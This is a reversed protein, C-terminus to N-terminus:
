ENYEKIEYNEIQCEFPLIDDKIGKFVPQRFSNKTNPMYEVTCVLTPNLWTIIENEKIKANSFPSQPLIQVNYQELIKLRVGLSVSGKYVLKNGSYQGLIFVSMSHKKIYGCIVFDEDIMRKFKIWDKSRKDQWYLSNKKKAVVGELEKSSAIQYLEIGNKEVFRSIAIRSNENICTQLLSKRVMLPLDMVEKNIYYLIDYAVFSAPFQKEALQIKFSDNLITRRQIEFFDPVGNNNLVVLEGDLICKDTVQNYIHSLEPFRRILSIDRRNRLDTSNKDLFAICRIGDLKLEYIFDPSNFPEQREKILMPKIGKTEFIDM